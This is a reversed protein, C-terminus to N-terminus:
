KSTNCSESMQQRAAKGKEINEMLSKVPLTMVGGEDEKEEAESQDPTNYEDEVEEEEDEEDSDEEDLEEQGSQDSDVSSRSVDWGEESEDDGGDASSEVASDVACLMTCCSMSDYILCTSESELM